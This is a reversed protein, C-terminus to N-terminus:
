TGQIPFYIHGSKKGALCAYVCKLVCLGASQLVGSQTVNCVAEM